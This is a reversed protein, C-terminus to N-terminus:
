KGSYYLYNIIIPQSGISSPANGDEPMLVTHHFPICMFKSFEYRFPYIPEFGIVTEQNIFQGIFKILKNAMHYLLIIKRKWRLSGPAYGPKTM